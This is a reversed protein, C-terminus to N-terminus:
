KSAGEGGGLEKHAVLRETTISLASYGNSVYPVVWTQGETVYVTPTVASKGYRDLPEIVHLTVTGRSPVLEGAADKTLVACGTSFTARGDPSLKPHGDRDTRAKPVSGQGLVVLKQDTTFAGGTWIESVATVLKRHARATWLDPM